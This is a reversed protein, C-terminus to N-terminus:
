DESALEVSILSSIEEVEVVGTVKGNNVVLRGAEDSDLGVVVSDAVVVLLM